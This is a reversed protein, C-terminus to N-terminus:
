TIDFRHNTAEVVKLPAKATIARAAQQGLQKYAEKLDPGFLTARNPTPQLAGASAYDQLPYCVYKGSNNAARILEDKSDLFFPDASVIVAPKTIKSFDATLTTKDNKGDKDNGGHVPNADGKWKNIEKTRMESNLNHFLCIDSSNYGKGALHAIRDDNSDYSELSVGGYFHTGQNTPKGGILSVFNKDGTDNLFSNAAEYAVLGGVTVILACKPDSNFKKIEKTLKLKDYSLNPKYKVDMSPISAVVEAKFRNRFEQDIRITSVVGIYDGVLRKKGTAKKQTKAKKSSKVKIKKRMAM